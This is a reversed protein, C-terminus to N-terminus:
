ALPLPRTRPWWPCKLRWIQSHSGPPMGPNSDETESSDSLGNQAVGVVHQLQRCAGRTRNLRCECSAWCAALMQEALDCPLPASPIVEDILAVAGDYMRRVIIRMLRRVNIAHMKCALISRLQLMTRLSLLFYMAHMRLADLFSGLEETM